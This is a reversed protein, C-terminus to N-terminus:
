VIFSKFADLAVDPACEVPHIRVEYGDVEAHVYSKDLGMMQKNEEHLKWEAIDVSPIISKIDAATVDKDAHDHFANDSNGDARRIELTWGDEPANVCLAGGMITVEGKPSM